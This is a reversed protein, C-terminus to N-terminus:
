KRHGAIDSLFGIAAEPIYSPMDIDVNPGLGCMAPATVITPNVYVDIVTKLVKALAEQRKTADVEKLSIDMLKDLEPFASAVLNQTGKSRFARDVQWATIVRESAAHTSANGILEPVPAKNAGGIRMPRFTGWDVPLLEAKVGIQSWYGQAVEALDPLYPSGSMNYAYLKFTFGNPYGAETLLQKAKSPDFSYANTDIHAFCDHVGHSRLLDM